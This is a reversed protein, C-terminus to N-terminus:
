LYTAVTSNAFTDQMKGELDVSIKVTLPPTTSIRASSTTDGRADWYQPSPLQKCSSYCYIYLTSYEIVCM